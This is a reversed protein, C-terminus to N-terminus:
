NDAAYEARDNERSNPKYVTGVFWIEDTKRDRILFMFPKDIKVEVLGSEDGEDRFRRYSSAGNDMSKSRESPNKEGKM